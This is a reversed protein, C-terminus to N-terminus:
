CGASFAAVFDLYDFFDIATDANFDASPENASFAAVFDLYDFFDVSTDANFDAQCPPATRFGTEPGALDQFRTSAGNPFGARIWYHFTQGPTATTDDYTFPPTGGSFGVSAIQTASGFSSTTGRYIRYGTANPTNTWDLRVKDNFTGDSATFNINLNSVITLKYLQSEGSPLTSCNVKIQYNGPPSLLYQSIVEASGAAATNVSVLQTGSAESWLQLSLNGLALANTFNNNSCNGQLSGNQPSDDYNSGIPTATVTVVRNSALSFEYWDSDLTNAISVTAANNTNPLPVNGVTITASSNLAGLLTSSASSANPEYIDGYVYQGGRVEDQQPGDFATSLFPEMLKTNAIPCVHNLGLGHGHEHGVTNRLFRYDGFSDNWGESRDLVMDGGGGAGPFANYALIGNGGDINKMSIRVMGRTASADAGWAGGDDWDNTGNTVRTYNVGTLAQWRNFTATIKAIWTARGGLTAFQADMRAFLDSNAVPEGVGSGISLGDPVLSWTVTVPTNVVGGANWSGGAYFRSGWVRGLYAETQSIVNPDTDPAYCAAAPATASFPSAVDAWEEWPAVARTLSSQGSWFSGIVGRQAPMTENAALTLGSVADAACASGAAVLLAVVSGTPRVNIM